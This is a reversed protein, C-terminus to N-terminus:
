TIPFCIFVSKFVQIELIKCFGFLWLDDNDETKELWCVKCSLFCQLLNFFLPEFSLQYIEGQFCIVNIWLSIFTHPM